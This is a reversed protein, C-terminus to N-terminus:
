LGVYALFSYIEYMHFLIFLINEFYNNQTVYGLDLFIAPIYGREFTTALKSDKSLHMKIRTEMSILFSTFPWPLMELSLTLVCTAHHSFPIYHFM